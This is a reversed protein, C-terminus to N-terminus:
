RAGEQPAKEVALNLRTILDHHEHVMRASETKFEVIRVGRSQFGEAVLASIEEVGGAIRHEVGFLSSAADLRCGHPTRFLPECLEPYEGIPLFSFIGGGDNNLLLIVVPRSAHRAAFLGGVDHIFAIDGTVLLLPRATAASIGLATSTIGDIGSVGRSVHVSTGSASVPCYAEAWRIPMSNSLFLAAGPPMAQVAARTAAAELPLPGRALIGRSTEEARLFLSCWRMRRPDGTRRTLQSILRDCLADIRAELVWSALADPDRRELDPQISVLIPRHRSLYSSITKSVPDRGFRVVLDPGDPGAFPGGRLFLDAHGCVPDQEGARFRIGSAVDALLPVGAAAATAILLQAEEPDGAAEPGAVFLCRGSQEIFEALRAISEDSPVGTSTPDIALQRPEGRLSARYQSDLAQVADTDQPVPALPERLPINLHVPGPLPRRAAAVAHAVIAGAARLMAVDAEPLPLDRFVRVNRGFLHLQDCTQPAGSHRLEPPRDATLVLLPVGTQSAEIVAPLYNAAATGSTCLLAVPVGTARAIGLAFYSASREDLHLTVDLGAREQAAIILPSSRSGPSACLHRVGAGAIEDILVRAWLANLNPM